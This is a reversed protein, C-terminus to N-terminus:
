NHIRLKTRYGMNQNPQKIKNTILKKLEKYVKSILERHSTPNTFIKEWDNPQQNTNDVIDKAKYFNELKILDWKDTKIKSCSGNFTM